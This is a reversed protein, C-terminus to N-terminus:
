SRYNCRTCALKGISSRWVNSNRYYGHKYNKNDKDCNPCRGSKVAGCDACAVVMIQEITSGNFRKPSKYYQDHNKQNINPCVQQIRWWGSYPQIVHEEYGCGCWVVGHQVLNESGCFSCHNYMGSKTKALCTTPNRSRKTKKINDPIVNIKDKKTKELAM